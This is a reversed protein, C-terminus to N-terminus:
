KAWIETLVFGKQKVDVSLGAAEGEEFRIQGTLEQETKQKIPLGTVPELEYEGAGTGSLTYRVTGADENQVGPSFKATVAITVRDAELQKLTFSLDTKMSIGAGANVAEKTATWSEGPFVSQAPYCDFAAEVFSKINSERFYARVDREATARWQGQNLAALAKQEAAGLGEISAVKGLPTIVLTFETGVVARAASMKAEVLSKPVAPLSFFGLDEQFEVCTFHLTMAGDDAVSLVKFDMTTKMSDPVNANNFTQSMNTEMRVRYESGVPLRLKLDTKKECGAFLALALLPFVPVFLRGKMSQRM